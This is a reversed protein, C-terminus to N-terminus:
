VTRHQYRKRALRQLAPQFGGSGHKEIIGEMFLFGVAREFDNGLTRMTVSISKQVFNQTSGYGLRIELPEEAALFDEKSISSNKEVKIITLPTVLTTRTFM